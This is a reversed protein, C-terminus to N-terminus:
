KVINKLVFVRIASSLNREGRTQDITEILSTLTLNRKEAITKLALWFEDELTISTPHGSIRVSHKKLGSNHTARQSNNSPTKM